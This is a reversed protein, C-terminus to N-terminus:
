EVVPLRLSKSTKQPESVRLISSPLGGSQGMSHDYDIAAASQNFPIGLKVRVERELGDRLEVLRESTLFDTHVYARYGGDPDGKYYDSVEDYDLEQAHLRDGNEPVTYTWFGDESLEAHDYYPTGPYTTIVTCDFDEPQTELLWQKTAEVTEESEGPHGVSMLAKVKLGHRKAIEVCRTNEDRTAKKKINELIRPHGAEFGTLIWRFGARKMAAAQEDNFLESKVFGRLRFEVGIRSQLDTISDMMEVMLKRNVNLEDDYFMFGTHGYTKHLSEIEDVVSKSSRTRIRRLMASERGGCFGCEFPCGLQSILSTSNHGEITYRYTTLDILHRAPMPLEEYRKKTLFLPGKPDDADIFHSEFKLAEMIADEGDGAVIVDFSSVLKSWSKAARGFSQLKMERKYAASVLTPHPGGLAVKANKKAHRIMKLIKTVAPMQPTTATIGWAAEQGNLARHYVAEEYNRVGSLDLVEVPHGERELAAAVRLVGLSPFVREDLLFLSPPIVLVVRQKM